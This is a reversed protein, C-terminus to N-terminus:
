NKKLHKLHIKKKMFFQFTYKKLDQMKELGIGAIMREPMSILLMSDFM